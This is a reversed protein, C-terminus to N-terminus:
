GHVVADDAQAGAASPSDAEPDAAGDSRAVEGSEGALVTGYRFTHAREVEALWFLDIFHPHAKFVNRSVEPTLELRTFTGDTSKKWLDISKLTAIYKEKLEIEFLQANEERTLDRIKGGEVRRMERRSIQNMVVADRAVESTEGVRVAVSRTGDPNFYPNGKPDVLEVTYGAEDEDHQALIADYDLIARRPPEATAKTTTAENTSPTSM